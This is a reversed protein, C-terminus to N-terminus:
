DGNSYSVRKRRLRDAFGRRWWKVFNSPTADLLVRWLTKDSWSDPQGQLGLEYAEESTVPVEEM